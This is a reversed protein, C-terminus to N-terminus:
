PGLARLEALSLQRPEYEAAEIHALMDVPVTVGHYRVYHALDQPWAWQGDTLVHRELRVDCDAVVSVVVGPSAFLVAAGELYDAM